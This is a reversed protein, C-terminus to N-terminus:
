YINFFRISLIFNKLFYFNFVYKKLYEIKFIVHEAKCKKLKSNCASRKKGWTQLDLLREKEREGM